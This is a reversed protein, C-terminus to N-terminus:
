LDSLSIFPSTPIKHDALLNKQTLRDQLTRLLSAQPFLKKSYKQDLAKLAEAPIFESEFTVLDMAKCFKLLDKIQDPQGQHWNKTVQAAPDQPDSSLVHVEIGMRHAQLVLMRALQGGGFIGIKVSTQGVKLSQFM